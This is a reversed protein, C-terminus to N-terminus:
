QGYLAKSIDESWARTSEPLDFELVVSRGDIMEVKLICPQDHSQSLANLLTCHCDLLQSVIPLVKRVQSLRCAGLPKYRYSATLACREKPCPLLSVGKSLKQVLVDLGSAVRGM